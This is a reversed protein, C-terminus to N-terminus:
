TAPTWSSSAGSTRSRRPPRQGIEWIIRAETLTYPDGHWGRGILGLQKVYFRNFARVADVREAAAESKTDADEHGNTSQTM